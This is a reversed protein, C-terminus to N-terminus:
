VTELKPSPSPKQSVEKLDSVLETKTDNGAKITKLIFVIGAAYILAGVTFYGYFLCASWHPRVLKYALFLVSSLIGAVLIIRLIKM